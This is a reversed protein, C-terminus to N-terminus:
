PKASTPRPHGGFHALANRVWTPHMTGKNRRMAEALQQELSAKPMDGIVAIALAEVDAIMQETTRPFDPPPNM